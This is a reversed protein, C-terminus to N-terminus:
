NNNLLTRLQTKLNTSVAPDALWARPEQLEGRKVLVTLLDLEPSGGYPLPTLNPMSCGAAGMAKGRTDFVLKSLREPEERLKRLSGSLASWHPNRRTRLEHMAATAPLDVTLRTEFATVLAGDTMGRVPPALTSLSLQALAALAGLPVALSQWSFGKKVSTLGAVGAAATLLFTATVFALSHELDLFRAVARGVVAFVVYSQAPALVIVVLVGVRWWRSRADRVSPYSKLSEPKIALAGILVLAALLLLAAVTAAALVFLENVHSSFRGALVGGCALAIVLSQLIALWLVLRLLWRALEPRGTRACIAALALTGLWYWVLSDPSVSAPLWPGSEWM